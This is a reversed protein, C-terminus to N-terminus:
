VLTQIDLLEYRKRADLHEDTVVVWGGVFHDEDRRNRSDQSARQCLDNRKESILQHQDGRKLHLEKLVQRETVRKLGYFDIHGIRPSESSQASLISVCCVALAVCIRSLQILYPKM